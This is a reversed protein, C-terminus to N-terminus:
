LKTDDVENLWEFVPGVASSICGERFPSELNAAKVLDLFSQSGGARCLRLYDTWAAQRNERSKQWFQFACIQALTYDIYYFPDGFIHGQQHWYGGRELYDNSEYRRYPLYIRELERWATKRDQSTAEPHAYVYHQFEDVCVGYPIFLLAESLHNFKYKETDGQFFLDMWPWTLFEMSLSHIECAEYTPWHYEPIQYHKSCYVQFAHGAEHTLVDIDGSTGNFNSFIYPAQYASIYTCYGGGAKGKKSVLDMLEHDTMYQFFEGTEPSLEHYMRGGKAVIWEADGQPIANGSLFSLKEDYYNLTNLGLRLRQRERLRVALPVISDRVQRRFNAVMEPTYDSRLLRAYGLEIFNAYGLKQAMRTRVKVLRDYINDLIEENAKFYAYKAENAQRRIDRDRSMQFPVLGPLNREEGEFLIKASALLKTYDSTLKNELQLDEIIEPTFTKLTLDAKVFLQKGWREELEKRFPSNVLSHYYRSILGQYVPTNEDFFAQEKEYFSDTTAVTHRIHTIQEMSEFKSRLENIEALVKTQKEADRAQDLQNLLEDFQGKIESLDPRQYKFDKFKMASM